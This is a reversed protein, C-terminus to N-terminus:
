RFRFDDEIALNGVDPFTPDLADRLLDLKAETNSSYNCTGELVSLAGINGFGTKFFYFVLMM